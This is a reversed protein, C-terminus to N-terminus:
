VKNLLQIKDKLDQIDAKADDIKNQTKKLLKKTAKSDTFFSMNNEYQTIEKKLVTIKIRISEKENNIAEKNGKFSNLKNKFQESLLEKKNLGIKEFKTNLLKIFQLNIDTHVSTNTALKSWRLNFEKLRNIEKETETSVELEKLETFLAEREKRAIKKTKEIKKYYQKKSEFFTDCATRFRKWIDNSKKDPSFDSNKWEEQLKILEKTTVKWNTSYQLDEAKKCLILKNELSQKSKKKKEKYFNNKNNYFNNLADRLEKWAIKNSKKNLHGLNKWKLELEKCKSTAEQWKNHSIIEKSALSNIEKAIIRKAKTKITDEKKREVFYDNRRKNIKRSITQFREWITERQDREVPGINKWHEHLEQLNKHSKDFSEEELLSEAKKCIEKKEALNRKFDLDRLDNNLKIFDYFLEVHHHYSQWIHNNEAIPVYGTNKWKKQLERFKEFTIKISEEEKSLTDIDEIIQKKIKLNKKEEAEKNKRFEAKIKRYANFTDKFKTELPHLEKKINEEQSESSEAQLNNKNEVQIKIYFISKIEEIEKSVNYPNENKSLLSIREILENMSLKNNDFNDVEKRINDISNLETSIEEKQNEVEQRKVAFKSINLSKYIGFKGARRQKFKFCKWDM